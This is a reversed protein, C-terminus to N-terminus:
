RTGGSGRRLALELSQIRELAARQNSEMATGMGTAGGSMKVLAVYEARAAQLQHATDLAIDDSPAPAIAKVPELGSAAARPRNRVTARASDFLSM